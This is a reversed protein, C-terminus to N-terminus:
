GGELDEERALTVMKTSAAPEDSQSQPQPASSGMFPSSQMPVDDDDTAHVGNTHTASIPKALGALSYTAHVSSRKKANQKHHFDYLMRVM